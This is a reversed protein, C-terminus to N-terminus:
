KELEEASIMKKRNKSLMLEMEESQKRKQLIKELQMQWEVLQVKLAISIYFDNEFISDVIANFYDTYEEKFNDEIYQLFEQIDKWDDELIENYRLTPYYIDDLENIRLHFIVYGRLKPLIDETKLAEMDNQGFLNYFYNTTTKSMKEDGKTNTQEQVKAKEKKVYTRIISSQSNIYDKVYSCDKETKCYSKYIRRNCDAKKQFYEFLAKIVMSTGYNGEIYIHVHIDPQTNHKKSEYFVFEKKPRGAKGTMVKEFKGDSLSHNSIGFLVSVDYGYKSCLRAVYVKASNVLAIVKEETMGKFYYYPITIMCGTSCM